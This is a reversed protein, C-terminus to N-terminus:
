EDKLKDLKIKIDTQSLECLHAEVNWLEGNCDHVKMMILLDAIVVLIFTIRRQKRETMTLTIFDM